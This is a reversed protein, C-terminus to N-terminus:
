NPELGGTDAATSLVPVETTHTVGPWVGSNTGSNSDVLPPSSQNGVRKRVPKRNVTGRTTLETDGGNTMDEGPVAEARSSPTPCARDESPSSHWNVMSVDAFGLTSSPQPAEEGTPKGRTGVTCDCPARTLAEWMEQATGKRSAPTYATERDWFRPTSKSPAALKVTYSGGCSNLTDGETALPRGFQGLTGKCTYPVPKKGVGDKPQENPPAAVTGAVYTDDLWRTHMDGWCGSPVTNSDTVHFPTSKVAGSSENGNEKVASGTTSLMLGADPDM